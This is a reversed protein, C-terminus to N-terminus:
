RWTTWCCRWRPNIRLTKWGAGKVYRGCTVSWHLARTRARFFPNVLSVGRYLQLSLKIIMNSRRLPFRTPSFNRHFVILLSQFSTACLSVLLTMGFVWIDAKKGYQPRDSNDNDYSIKFFEPALWHISGRSTPLVQLGQTVIVWSRMVRDGRFISQSLWNQGCIDKWTNVRRSPRLKIYM